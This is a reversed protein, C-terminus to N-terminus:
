MDPFYFAYDIDWLDEVSKRRMNREICSLARQPFGLDLRKIEDMIRAIMEERSIKPTIAGVKKTALSVAPETHADHITSKAPTMM